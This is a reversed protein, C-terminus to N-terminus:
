CHLDLSDQVILYCARKLLFYDKQPRGGTSKKIVANFLEDLNLGVESAAIMAEKIVNEFNQWSASYGLIAALDRASWYEHGLINIQKISEFDPKQQM